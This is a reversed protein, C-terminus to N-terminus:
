GKLSQKQAARAAVSHFHPCLNKAEALRKVFSESLIGTEISGLRIRVGLKDLALVVDALDQGADSYSAIHIGTLVIEKAGGNKLTEAESIIDKFEKSRSRGRVYPIICYSCFNNCGEQIKITGRTREGPTTVSMKEFGCREIDHVADVHERGSLIDDAVSVIRGRDDTGVAADVGEIELIRGSDKQTMCGAAIVKGLKSARRIMARSKKDATATVTCTNIVVIDCPIGFPVTKYGSKEFQEQMFTSDYTNVKCGLTYFSVTKM